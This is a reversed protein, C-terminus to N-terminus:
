DDKLVFISNSYSGIKILTILAIQSNTAPCSDKTSIKEVAVKLLACTISIPPLAIDAAPDLVWQKM